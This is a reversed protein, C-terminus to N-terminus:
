RRGHCKKFKIPKGIADTKGCPCPDNRGVGAYRIKQAEQVYDIGQISPVRFSVWTQGNTNTIAFDGRIIIDMGVIVGFLTTEGLETVPVGVIGVGNPLHLNVLYTNSLSSGGAHNVMRAGIPTLGLERAVSPTISSGTAGTDWLASASISTPPPTPPNRPDFATTLQISTVIRTM